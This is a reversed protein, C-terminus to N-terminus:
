SVKDVKGNIANRADKVLEDISLTKLANPPEATHSTFELAGVAKRGIYFLRETISANTRAIGRQAFYADMVKNGFKDPLADSIFKPLGQFTDQAVPKRYSQNKWQKLPMEFPSLEIGSHIFNEDFEFLIVGNNEELYGVTLGFIEIKIM